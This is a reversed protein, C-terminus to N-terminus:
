ENVRQALVAISLENGDQTGVAIKGNQNESLILMPEAVAMNKGDATIVIVKLRLEINGPHIRSESAVVEIVSQFDASKQHVSALEDAAATVHPSAVAQGNLAIEMQLDFAKTTAFASSSFLVFLLGLYKM